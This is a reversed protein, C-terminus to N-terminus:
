IQTGPANAIATGDNQPMENGEGFRGRGDRGGFGEGNMEPPAGDPMNGDPMQPMEGNGFEPMQPMEGDPLAPPTGTPQESGQTQPATNGPEQQTKDGSQTSDTGNEPAAPKQVQTSPQAPIETSDTNETRKSRGDFGNGNNDSGFGGFGGGFGGHGFNSGTGYINSTMEVNYSKGGATVSYTSGSVIDPTSIVACNYQKEPTYSILTNGNADTLSIETGAALTSDFTYLIAGQTSDSSFNEAMGSSGAAVVIGGTITASLGSDIAGNGDNTPGSIYLEGGSVTIYGNSDIGDGDANVNVLGGSIELKASEDGMFGSSGGGSANMGDDSARVNVTGGSIFITGGEIGEYSETIETVGGSITLQTEAHIGDDGSKASVSGGTINVTGDSHVADDSSDIVFTGGNITIATGSKIGKGSSGSNNSDSSASDMDWRKDGWGGKAFSDSRQKSGNASGGAATVTITGDEAIIEGSADVADGGSMVIIRGGCIYIFGEAADKSNEAHIGDTGSTITIDGDAIRVSENCDIGKKASTISYTGSTIKLDDKAVIGHAAESSIELSGSGNFTIDDRAYVAGDINEEGDSSYEGTSALRNTSGAATTVFVKDANKIYLAASGSSTVSAGDLVIQVKADEADVVIQGNTLTGSFVYSGKETITIINGNVTVGSGEASSGSDSLKIVAADSYGVEFDRSTFMDDASITSETSASMNASIATTSAAAASTSETKETAAQTETQQGAGHDDSCATM